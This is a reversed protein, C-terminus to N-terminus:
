AFMELQKNTLFYEDIVKEIYDLKEETLGIFTGLFFASTTAKHANPFKEMLEPVTLDTLHRYGPHYLINGSFYSRTQIKKKELFNVLKKKEDLDNMLVLFGFWCPDSKDTATQLTLEESHKNFISTLRKHNDRRAKEMAPLKKLQALGIAAQLELPKLNYGIEDFVYRHDYEIESDPFWNNFRCGCATGCTVNGPKLENCYCARGWDRFSNLTTKLRYENTCVMGGEATTM